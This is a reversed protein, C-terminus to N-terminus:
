IHVQSARDGPGNSRVSSQSFRITSKVTGHKSHVSYRDVSRLQEEISQILALFEEPSPHAHKKFM